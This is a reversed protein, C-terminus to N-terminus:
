MTYIHSVTCIIRTNSVVGTRAIRGHRQSCESRQGAPPRAPTRPRRADSRGVSDCRNQGGADIAVQSWCPQDPTQASELSAGDAASARPAAKSIACAYLAIPSRTARLEAAVAEARGVLLRLNLEERAGSHTIATPERPTTLTRLIYTLSRRAISPPGCSSRLPATSRGSVHREPGSVRGSGRRRGLVSRRARRAPKDHARTEHTM